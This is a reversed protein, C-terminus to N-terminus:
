LGLKPELEGKGHLAVVEKFGGLETATAIDDALLVPLTNSLAEPLVSVAPNPGLLQAAVGGVFAGIVGWRSAGM